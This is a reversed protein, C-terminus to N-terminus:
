FPNMELQAVPDCGDGIPFNCINQLNPRLEWALLYQIDASNGIHPWHRFELELALTSVCGRWEKGGGLGGYILHM